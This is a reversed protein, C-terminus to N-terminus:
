LKGGCCSCYGGPGSTVAMAGKEFSESFTRLETKKLKELLTELMKLEVLLAEEGTVKDIKRKELENKIERLKPPLM